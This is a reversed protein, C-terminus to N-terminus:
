HRYSNRLPIHISYLIQVDKDKNFQNRAVNVTVASGYINGFYFLASISGFLVTKWNTAGGKIWNEATAAMLSGTILFSSIGEGLNGAYVKGLGPIIASLSAALLPSKTSHTCLQEKIQMLRLSEESIRYDSTDLTAILSDFSVIDRKLLSVGALEFTKLNNTQIDNSHLTYLLQMADDFRYQHANCLAAFFRSEDYLPSNDSVNCYHYAASDLSHTYYLGIAKLYHTTDNNDHKNQMVTVADEKMGNGILYLVFGFDDSKSHSQAAINVPILLLIFLVRKM